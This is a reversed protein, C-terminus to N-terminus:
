YETARKKDECFRCRGQRRTCGEGFRRIHPIWEYQVTRWRPAHLQLQELEAVHQEHSQIRAM